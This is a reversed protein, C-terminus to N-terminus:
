ILSKRNAKLYVSFLLKSSVLSCRLFFYHISKRKHNATMQSNEQEQSFKSNRCGLWLPFWRSVQSSIFHRFKQTQCLFITRCNIMTQNITYKHAEQDEKILETVEYQKTREGIMVNYFLAAPYCPLRILYRCALMICTHRGADKSRPMICTPPRISHEAERGVKNFHLSKTCENKADKNPIASQLLSLLLAFQFVQCFHLPQPSCKTAILHHWLFYPDSSCRRTKKKHVSNIADTHRFVHKKETHFIHSIM